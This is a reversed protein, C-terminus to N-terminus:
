SRNEITQISTITGRNMSIDSSTGNTFLGRLPHMCAEQVNSCATVSQMSTERYVWQLLSIFEKGVLSAYIYADHAGM